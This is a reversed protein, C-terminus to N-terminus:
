IRATYDVSDGAHSAQCEADAYIICFCLALM